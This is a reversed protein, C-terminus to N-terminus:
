ESKVQNRDPMGGQAGLKTVSIAAAKNAFKVAEGLSMGEVLAVALAGNFTDGAGTTDVVKVENGKIEVLSSGDHYVAGNKGMTLILKNPYLKLIEVIDGKGFLLRLETENPTIFTAKDIANTNLQAAPAPNLIVPINSEHCKELVYEVTKIPIELQIVVLKSNKIMGLCSDILSEDVSHNAGPIVIISNEGRSLVIGAVGTPKDEITRVGSVEIGYIVLNDLMAKGNVDNGVCGIFGVEAGLKAAAVAQNAGKGGPTTIFGSGLVTEGPEPRKDTSFVLDANISGIVLIDSMRDGEQKLNM